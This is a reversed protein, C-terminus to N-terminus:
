RLEFWYLISGSGNSLAASPVYYTSGNPVIVQTSGTSYTSATQSNGSAAMVIGDVYFRMNFGAASSSGVTVSVMIPKGTSNTYTTNFARSLKVDQWTQGVGLQSFDSAPIGGLYSTNNATLNTSDSVTNNIQTLAM